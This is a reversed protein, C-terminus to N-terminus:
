QGSQSKGASLSNMPARLAIVDKAINVKPILVADPACACVAQLDDAGWPSSMDNVRVIWEVTATPKRDFFPRLNHRASEKEEPGVADELDLIVADSGRSAVASLAKENSMPVFLVSRRRRNNLDMM